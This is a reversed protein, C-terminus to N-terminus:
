ESTGIDLQPWPGQMWGDGDSFAMFMGHEPSFFSFDITGGYHTLTQITTDNGDMSRWGFQQVFFDYVDVVNNHALDVIEDGTAVKNPSNTVLVCESPSHARVHKCDYTKMARLGFGPHVLLTLFLSTLVLPTNISM